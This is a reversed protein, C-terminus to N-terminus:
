NQNWKNFHEKKNLYFNYDEESMVPAELLLDSFSVNESSVKTTSYNEPLLELKIASSVYIRNSENLTDNLWILHKKNKPLESDRMLYVVVLIWESVLSYAVLEKLVEPANQLFAIFSEASLEEITQSNKTFDIDSSIVDKSKKLIGKSINFSDGVAEAIVSFILDEGLGAFEDIADPLIESPNFGGKLLWQFCKIRLELLDKLNNKIVSIDLPANQYNDKFAEIFIRFEKQLQPNIKDEVELLSLISYGSNIGAEQM